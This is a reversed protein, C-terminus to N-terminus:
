LVIKEILFGLVKRNLIQSKLSARHAPSGIQDAQPENAYMQKMMEIETDVESDEVNIKEDESLQGLALGAKVRQEAEPRMDEVMQEKTRKASAIYDEFNGGQSTVTHELEALMRQSETRILLDPIVTFDTNKIVTEVVERELRQSEKQDAEYEMRQKMMEKFKGVPDSNVAKGDPGVIGTAGEDTNEKPLFKNAFEENFEPLTLSAVSNVKVKFDAKKGALHEAHYEKPFQLTFEKEEDKKMGVLEDEFGPIMTNEGIVLRHDKGTGGEIVVKDRKVEFDVVVVDGKVAKNDKPEENAYTKRLSDIQETMDADKIESKNRKVKKELAKIKVTPMLAVLASFEVDNDPAVKEVSIEPSGVVDLKESTVADIYLARVMSDLAENLLTMEGVQKVVVDFPAKGPRFGAIKKSKSIEEAAKELHPKQDNFDAVIKLNAEGKDKNHTVEIKM